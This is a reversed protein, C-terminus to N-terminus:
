QKLSKVSPAAYRASFGHRLAEEDDDEVCGEDFNQAYSLPDYKYGYTTNTRKAWPLKLKLFRWCSLMGGERKRRPSSLSREMIAEHFSFKLPAM